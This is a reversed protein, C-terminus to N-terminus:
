LKENKRELVYYEPKAETGQEYRAVYKSCEKRIQNDDDDKVLHTYRQREKWDKYKKVALSREYKPSFRFIVNLMQTGNIVGLAKIDCLNSIFDSIGEQGFKDKISKYETYAKIYYKNEPDYFPEKDIIYAANIPTNYIFYYKCNDSVTRSEAKLALYDAYYLIISQEVINM